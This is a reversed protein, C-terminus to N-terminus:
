PEGPEEARGVAVPQVQLGAVVELDGLVGEAVRERLDFRQSCGASVDLRVFGTCAPTWFVGDCRRAADPDGGVTRSRGRDISPCLPAAVLANTICRRLDAGRQLAGSPIRVRAAPRFARQCQASHEGAFICTM